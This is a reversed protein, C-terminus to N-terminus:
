ARVESAAPAKTLDAVEANTAALYDAPAMLLQLGRMGASVSVVDWLEM